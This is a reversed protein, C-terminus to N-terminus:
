IRQNEQGVEIYKYMNYNISFSITKHNVGHIGIMLEIMVTSMALVKPFGGRFSIHHSVTQLRM